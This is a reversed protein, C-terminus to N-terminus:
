VDVAVAGPHEPEFTKVKHPFGYKTILKKLKSIGKNGRVGYLHNSRYLLNKFLEKQELIQSPGLNHLKVSGDSRTHVVMLDLGLRRSMITGVGVHFDAVVIIPNDLKRILREIQTMAPDYEIRGPWLLVRPRETRNREVKYTQPKPPLTAPWLKLNFTPQQDLVPKATSGKEFKPRREKKATM